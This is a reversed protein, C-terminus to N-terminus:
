ANRLGIALGIKPCIPLVISVVIPIGIIPGHLSRNLLFNRLQNLVVAALTRRSGGKPDTLGRDTSPEITIM